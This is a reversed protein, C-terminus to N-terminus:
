YSYHRILYADFDAYKNADFVFPNVFGTNPGFPYFLKLIQSEEFWVYRGENAYFPTYSDNATLEVTIGHFSGTDFNLQTHTTIDVTGAKCVDINIKKPEGRNDTWFLLNDIINIGTIINGFFKLVAKKTSAYRDVIIYQSAENGLDYEVIADM